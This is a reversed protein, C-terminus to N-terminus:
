EYDHLEDLDKLFKRALERKAPSMRTLLTIMDSIEQLSDLELRTEACDPLYEHITKQYYRCLTRLKPFDINTTGNEMNRITSKSYGTAEAVTERTIHLSERYNRLRKGMENNFDDNSLEMILDM